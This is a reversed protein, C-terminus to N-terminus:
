NFITRTKLLHHLPENSCLSWQPPRMFFALAMLSFDISQIRHELCAFFWLRFELVYSIPKSKDFLYVPFVHDSMLDILGRGHWYLIFAGVVSFYCSYFTHPDSGMEDIGMAHFYTAVFGFLFIGVYSHALAKPMSHWYQSTPITGTEEAGKQQQLLWFLRLFVIIVSLADSFTDITHSIGSSQIMLKERLDVKRDFSAALVLAFFVSSSTALDKAFPTYIQVANRSFLQALSMSSSSPDQKKTSQISQFLSFSMMTTTKLITHCNHNKRKKRRPPLFIIFISPSM